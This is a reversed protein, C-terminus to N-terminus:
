GIQEYTTKSDEGRFKGFDPVWFGRPYPVTDFVEPYPKQYTRVRGKSELGFEGLYWAVQERVNDSMGTHRNGIVAPFISPRHFCADLV